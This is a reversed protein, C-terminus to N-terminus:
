VPCNSLLLAVLMDVEADPFFIFFFFHCVLPQVPLAM